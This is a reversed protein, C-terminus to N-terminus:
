RTRRPVWAATDASELDELWRYPDAIKRGFYDDVVDGAATTPYALATQEPVAASDALATSACLTALLLPLTGCDPRTM